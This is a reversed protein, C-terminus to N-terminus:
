IKYAASRITHLLKRAADVEFKPANYGDVTRRSRGRLEGEQVLRSIVAHDVGLQKALERSGLAQEYKM